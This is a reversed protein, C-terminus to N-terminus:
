RPCVRGIYADTFGLHIGRKHCSEHFRDDLQPLRDLQGDAFQYEVTVNRDEIFGSEALGKPFGV